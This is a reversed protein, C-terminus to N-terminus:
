PPARTLLCLDTRRYAGKASSLILSFPPHHGEKLRLRQAFRLRSHPTGLAPTLGELASQARVEPHSPCLGLALLFFATANGLNGELTSV